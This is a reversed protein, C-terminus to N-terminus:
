NHIVARYVVIRGRPQYIPWLTYQPDRSVKIPGTYQKSPITPITHSNSWLRYQVSNIGKYM